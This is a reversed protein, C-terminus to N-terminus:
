KNYSRLAEKANEYTERSPKVEYYDPIVARRRDEPTQTAKLGSRFYKPNSVLFRTYLEEKANQIPTELSIPMYKLESKAMFQEAAVALGKFDSLAEATAKAAQAIQTYIPSRKDFAVFFTMTSSHYGLFVGEMKRSRIRHDAVSQKIAMERDAETKFHPRGQEGEMLESATPVAAIARVENSFYGAIEEYRDLRNLLKALFSFAVQYLKFYYRAQEGIYLLARYEEMYKAAKEKGEETLLEKAIQVKEDKSLDGSDNDFYNAADKYCIYLRMKEQITGSELVEEKTKGNFQFARVEAPPADGDAEEATSATVIKRGEVMANAVARLRKQSEMWKDAEIKALVTKLYRLTGEAEAILEKQREIDGRKLTQAEDLATQVDAASQRITDTMAEIKKTIREKKDM